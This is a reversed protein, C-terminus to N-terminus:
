EELSASVAIFYTGAPWKIIPDKGADELEPDKANLEGLSLVTRTSTKKLIFVHKKRDLKGSFNALPDGKPLHVYMGSDAVTMETGLAVTCGFPCLWSVAVLHEYGGRELKLEQLEDCVEKTSMPTDNNELITIDVPKGDYGAAKRKESYKEWHSKGEKADPGLPHKGERIPMELLLVSYHNECGNERAMETFSKNYDIRKGSIVEVKRLAMAKEERGKTFKLM